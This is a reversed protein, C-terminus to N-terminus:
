SYIYKVILYRGMCTHVICVNQLFDCLCPHLISDLIAEWSGWTRSHDGEPIQEGTPHAGSTVEKWGVSRPLLSLIHHNGAAPSPAESGVNVAETTNFMSEARKVRFFSAVFSHVRYSLSIHTDDLTFPPRLCSVSVRVELVACIPITTDTKNM